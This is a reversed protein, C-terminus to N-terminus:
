HHKIRELRHAATIVRDGEGVVLYVDLHRELTKVFRAGVYREVQRRARQDLFVKEAGGIARERRGFRMVLDVVLPPIARQQCRKAAHQTLDLTM